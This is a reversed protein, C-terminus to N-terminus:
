ESSCIAADKARYLVLIAVALPTTGCNFRSRSPYRISSFPRGNVSSPIFAPRFKVRNEPRTQNSTFAGGSRHGKRRHRREADSRHPDQIPDRGGENPWGAMRAADDHVLEERLPDQPRDPNLSGPGSHFTASSKVPCPVSRTESADPSAFSRAASRLTAQVDHAFVDRGCSDRRCALPGDLRHKVVSSRRKSLAGRMPRM